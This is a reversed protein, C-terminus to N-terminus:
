YVHSKFLLTYKLTVILCILIVVIFKCVQSPDPKWAIFGLIEFTAPVGRSDKNAYM